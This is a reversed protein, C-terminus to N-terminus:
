RHGESGRQAGGSQRALQRGASESLARANGTRHDALDFAALHLGGSGQQAAQRTRQAHRKGLQHRAGFAVVPSKHADCVL